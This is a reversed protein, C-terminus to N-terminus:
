RPFPYAGGAPATPRRHAKAALVGNKPDTIANAFQVAESATPWSDRGIQQLQAYAESSETDNVAEHMADPGGVAIPKIDFVAFEAAKALSCARLVSADSEALKAFAMDGPMNFQEAAYKTPASVLAFESYGTKGVDCIHKCIKIPGFDKLINELTMPQEKATEAAKHLRTFAHGAPHSILWNLAEARSSFKGSEVTLDALRSLAHESAGDGGDPGLSKVDGSDERDDAMKALCGYFGRDHRALHEAHTREAKEIERRHWETYDIGM